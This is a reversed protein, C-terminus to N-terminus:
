ASLTLNERSTPVALDSTGGGARESPPGRYGPAGHAEQDHGEAQIRGCGQHHRGVPVFAQVARRRGHGDEALVTGPDETAAVLLRAPGPQGDIGVAEHGAEGVPGDGVAAVRGLPRPALQGEEQGGVARGDVGDLGEDPGDGRGIVVRRPEEDAIPGREEEEVEGAPRARHGLGEGGADVDELVTGQAGGRPLDVVDAGEEAWRGGQAPGIELLLEAEDQGVVLRRGGPRPGGLRRGGLRRGGLRRGGLRRGGLRRGGLRRGRPVVALSM